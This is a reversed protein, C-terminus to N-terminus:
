VQNLKREGEGNGSRTFAMRYAAEDDKYSVFPQAKSEAEDFLSRTSLSSAPAEALAKLLGPAITIHPVGALAM